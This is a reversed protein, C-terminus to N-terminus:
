YITLLGDRPTSCVTGSTRIADEGGALGRNKRERRFFRFYQAHERVKNSQLAGSFIRNPVDLRILSTALFVVVNGASSM